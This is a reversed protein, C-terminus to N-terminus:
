KAILSIEVRRNLAQGEATDNSAVPQAAGQSSATIRALPLGFEAITAAVNNAREQGLQVNAQASGISDTHGVTIMQYNPNRRVFQIRKILAQRDADTLNFFAQNLGFRVIVPEALGAPIAADNDNAGSAVDRSPAGNSAFGEETATVGSAQNTEDNGTAIPSLSVTLLNPLTHSGAVDENANDKDNDDASSGTSNDPSGSTANDASNEAPLIGYLLIMNDRQIGRATLQQALWNARALGLNSFRNSSTESSAERSDQGADFYGTITVDSPQQIQEAQLDAALQDLSQKLRDGNTEAANPLGTDTLQLGITTAPSNPLDAILYGAVEPLGDSANDADDNSASASNEGVNNDNANAQSNANQEPSNATDINDSVPDSGPDLNPVLVSEGTAASDASANSEGVSNEPKADDSVDHSTAMKATQEDCCLQKAHCVWYYTAGIMWTVLLIILLVIGKKM